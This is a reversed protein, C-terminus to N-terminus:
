GIVHPLRRESEVSFSGRDRSSRVAIAIRDRRSRPTRGRAKEATRHHDKSRSLEVHTVLIVFSRLWGIFIARDRTTWPSFFIPGDSKLGHGIFGQDRRHQYSAGSSAVHRGDLMESLCLIACTGLQHDRPSPDM